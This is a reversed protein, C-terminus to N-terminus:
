CARLMAGLMAGQEKCQLKCQDKNRDNSRHNSRAGLMIKANSRVNIKTGIMARLIGVQEYCARLMAGLM